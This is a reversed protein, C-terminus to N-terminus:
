FEQARAEAWAIDEATIEGLEGLKELLLEKLRLRLAPTVQFKERWVERKAEELLNM